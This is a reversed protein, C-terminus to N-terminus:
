SRREVSRAILEVTVPPVEGVVTIQHGELLRGYANVAGMTSLGNFADEPAPLQEVYVSVTALGDSYVM